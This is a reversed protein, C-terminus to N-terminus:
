SQSYLHKRFRELIKYFYIYSKGISQYEAKRLVQQINEENMRVADFMFNHKITLKKLRKTRGVKIEGNCRLRIPQITSSSPFNWKSSTLIM